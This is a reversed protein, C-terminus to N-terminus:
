NSVESVISDNSGVDTPVDTTSTLPTSNHKRVGAFSRDQLMIEPVKRVIGCWPTLGFSEEQMDALEMDLNTVAVQGEWTGFAGASKAAELMPRLSDMHGIDDSSSSVFSDILAETATLRASPSRRLLAQVFALAGRSSSASAGSLASKVRFDPVPDGSRIAAKMARLTSATYPFKGYFLVYVIAGMSWIDVETGYAMGSLMEPAMFPLTGHEGRVGVIGSNMSLGFDCLKIVGDPTFLFNEPKVDRHVVGVAHVQELGQLMQRFIDRLSRESVEPLQELGLVFSRDCREMVMYAFSTDRFTEVLNVVNGSGRIQRMIAVEKDWDKSLREHVEGSRGQARLDVVKVALEAGSGASQPRIELDQVSAAYVSAYTGRGLRSSIMYKDHFSLPVLETAQPCSSQACGM